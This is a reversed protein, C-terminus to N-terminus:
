CYKEVLSRQLIVSKGKESISLANHYEDYDIELETLFARLAIENCKDVSVKKAALLHKEARELYDKDEIAEKMKSLIKKARKM